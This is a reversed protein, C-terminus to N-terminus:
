AVPKWNFTFSVRHPNLWVHQYEVHRASVPPSILLSLKYSGAGPLGVDNGYHPGMYRSLMPWQREDYVIKSGKSITAWVSAYPIPVHTQADSLMVMLHFSTHRPVKVMREGTGNFIVFPVATMAQATVSMGQWTSKGLVQTPVPKIGAVAAFAKAANSSTGSSSSGGMNMGAMGSSSTASAKTSSSAHKNAAACGAALAGVALLAAGRRVLAGARMRILKNM